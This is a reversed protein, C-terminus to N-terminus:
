NKASKEEELDEADEDDEWPEWGFEDRALEKWEDTDPEESYVEDAVVGDEYTDVGVFCMGEEMYAHRIHLDPFKEALRAFAAQPPSWASEFSFIVENETSSSEDIEADVDWKTGWAGINWDYWNKYGFEKLNAKEREDNLKQVEADGSWGATTEVLPQPTPAIKTLLAKGDGLWEKFAALNKGSVIVNNSCWNPM